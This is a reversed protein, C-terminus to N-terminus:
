INILNTKGAGPDPTTPPEPTTVRTGARTIEEYAETTSSVRRRTSPKPTNKKSLKEDDKADLKNSAIGQRSRQRSPKKRPSPAALVENDGLSFGFANILYM